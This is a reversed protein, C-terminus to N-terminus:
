IVIFYPCFNDKLVYTLTTILDSPGLTFVDCFKEMLNFHRKLDYIISFYIDEHYM